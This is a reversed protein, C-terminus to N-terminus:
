FFYYSSFEVFILAKGYPNDNTGMSSSYSSKLGNKTYGIQAGVAWTKTLEYLGEISTAAVYTNEKQNAVTSAGKFSLQTFAWGLEANINILFQESFNLVSYTAIGSFMNSVLEVNSSSNNLRGVKGGLYFFPSYSQRYGLRIGAGLPSGYSLSAIRNNHGTLPVFALYSKLSEPDLRSPGTVNVLCSKIKCKKITSTFLTINNQKITILDGDHIEKGRLIVFNRGDPFIKLVSLKQINSESQVRNIFILFIFSILGIKIM